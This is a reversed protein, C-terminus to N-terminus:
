TATGDERATAFAVFIAFALLSAFAITHAVLLPTRTGTALWHWGFLPAWGAVFAFIAWREGARSIVGVFLVFGLGALFLTIHLALLAGEGGALWWHLGLLVAWGAQLGVLPRARARDPLLRHVRSERRAAREFADM